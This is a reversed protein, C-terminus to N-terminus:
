RNMEFRSANCNSSGNNLFVCLKIEVILFLKFGEFLICKVTLM